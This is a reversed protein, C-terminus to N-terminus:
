TGVPNLFFDGGMRTTNKELVKDKRFVVRKHERFSVLM